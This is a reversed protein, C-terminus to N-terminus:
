LHTGPLDRSLLVELKIKICVYILLRLNNEIGIMDSDERLLHFM